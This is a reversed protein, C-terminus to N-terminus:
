DKNKLSLRCKQPRGNPLTAQSAAIAPTVVWIAAFMGVKTLTGYYDATAEPEATASTTAATPKEQTGATTLTESTELKGAQQQASQQQRGLLEQQPKFPCHWSIKSKQKKKM